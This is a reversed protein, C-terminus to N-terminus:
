NPQHHTLRAVEHLLAGIEFPKALHGDACVGEPDSASMVLVPIAALAPDRLQESRFQWGNMVPMMLDLLILSPRVKSRRLRRLADRGNRVGVAEFGEEALIEVVADRIFADDEVVMVTEAV